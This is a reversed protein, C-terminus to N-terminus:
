RFKLSSWWCRWTQWWLFSTIWVRTSRIRLTWTKAISDSFTSAQGPVNFARVCNSSTDFWLIWTFRVWASQSCRTVNRPIWNTITWFWGDTIWELLTTGWNNNSLKAFRSWAAFVSVTINRITTFLAIASWSVNTIWIASTVLRRSWNTFWIWTSWISLANNLLITFRNAITWESHATISITNTTAM